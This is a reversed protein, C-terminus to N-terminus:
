ATFFLVMFHTMTVMSPHKYSHTALHPLGPGIQLKKTDQISHEDSQQLNVHIVFFLHLFFTFSLQVQQSMM